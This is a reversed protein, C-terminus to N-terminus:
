TLRASAKDLAVDLDAFASKWRPDNDPWKEEHAQNLLTSAQTAAAMAEQAVSLLSLIGEIVTVTGM